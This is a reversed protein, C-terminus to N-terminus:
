NASSRFPSRLRAAACLDSVGTRTRRACGSGARATGQPPLHMVTKYDQNFGVLHAFAGMLPELQTFDKGDATTIRLRAFAPRGVQITKQALFLEYNLGDVTAKLNVKRETLPEGAVAAPIDAM